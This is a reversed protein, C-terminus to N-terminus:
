QMSYLMKAYKKFGEWMSADRLGRPNIGLSIKKFSLTPFRSSSTSELPRQRGQRQWFVSEIHHVNVSFTTLKRKQQEQKNKKWAQNIELILTGLSAHLVRERDREIMEIERGGGKGRRGEEEGKKKKRRM